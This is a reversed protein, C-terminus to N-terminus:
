TYLWESGMTILCILAVVLILIILLRGFKPTGSTDTVLEEDEETITALNEKTKNDTM